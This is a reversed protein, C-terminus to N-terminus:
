IGEDQWSKIQSLSYGVLLGAKEITGYEKMIYGLAEIKNNSQCQDVYEKTLSYEIKQKIELIEKSLPIKEFLLEVLEQINM